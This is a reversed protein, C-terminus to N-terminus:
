KKLSEIANIDVWYINGERAFFLYKGDPSVSACMLDLGTNIKDGMKKATTWSGDKKKLSIYFYNGAADSADPMADFILYSEDPAAYPHAIYPFMNIQKSLKEPEQYKGDAGKRSMFLEFSNKENMGTFYIAGATTESPYMVFRNIFPSPMPKPASWGAATKELVWQHLGTSKGTEELPRQSGFYLRKGDPTIFPEFDFYKGSFDAVQPELWQGAAIKTVWITNTNEGKLGGRRTFYFEKGDPSFTGAFEYAETSIIGPTFLEPTLGPKKQGLYEGKLIPFKRPTTDANKATLLNVIEQHDNEAASHLPTRGDLSKVNIDAGKDMLLKVVAQHGGSAAFHLPTKGFDNPANIDMGKDILLATIEPNGSAAARHLLTMGDSGKINMDAGKALLLATTGTHGQSVANALPTMNFIDLPNLRAGNVILLEVTKTDGVAAALHLPTLNFVTKSNVDAKQSVLFAAIDGRGHEAAIHLPTKGEDDKSNLLGPDKKLLMKIKEIDGSKAADHIEGAWLHVLFAFLIGFFIIIKKLRTM